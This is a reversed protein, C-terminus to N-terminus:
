SHGGPGAPGTVDVHATRRTTRRRAPLRLYTTVPRPLWVDLLTWLGVIALGLLLTARGAHQHVWARVYGVYPICVKVRGVTGDLPISWKESADNADGLTEMLALNGDVSISTLRHTLLRRPKAPDTFTLVDGPRADLPRITEDLVVAGTPLTPEMSGSLMTLSQYGFVVPVSMALALTAAFGIVTCLGFVLM